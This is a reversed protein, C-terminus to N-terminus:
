FSFAGFSSQQSQLASIAREAETFTRILQAERLLPNDPTNVCANVVPDCSDLTCPDNDDCSPPLGPQCTATVLDCTEVGNCFQGDDCAADSTVHVCADATEDCSDATCIDADSCDVATGAQCDLAVDCSEIGNCFLGDDCDGDRSCEGCGGAALALATLFGAVMWRGTRM